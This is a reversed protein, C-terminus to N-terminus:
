RMRMKAYCGKSEYIYLIQEGVGPVEVINIDLEHLKDKNEPSDSRLLNDLAGVYCWVFSVKIKFCFQVVPDDLNPM